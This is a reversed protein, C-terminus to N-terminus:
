KTSIEILEKILKDLDQKTIQRTAAANAHGGGNYKACITNIIYKRKSRVSIDYKTGNQVAFAWVNLDKINGIADIQNKAEVPDMKLSELQKKTLLVYGFKKNVKLNKRIETIKKYTDLNVDFLLENLNDPTINLLERGPRHLLVKRLTKIESKVNINKM